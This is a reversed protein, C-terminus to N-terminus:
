PTFKPIIKLNSDVIKNGLTDFKFIAASLKIHTDMAGGEVHELQTEDLEVTGKPTPAQTNKEDAM